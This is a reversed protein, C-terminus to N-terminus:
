IGMSLPNIYLIVRVWKKLIGIKPTPHALYPAKYVDVARWFFIVQEDGLSGCTCFVLYRWTGLTASQVRQTADLAGGATQLRKLTPIWGNTEDNVSVDLVVFM